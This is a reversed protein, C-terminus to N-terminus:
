HSKARSPRTWNAAAQADVCAPCRCGWDRYTGITGHPLQDTVEALKAARRARARRHRENWWARCVDCRCGQDEYASQSGHRLRQRREVDRQEVYIRLAEVDLFRSRSM